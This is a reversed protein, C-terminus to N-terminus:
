FLSFRLSRPPEAAHPAGETAQHGPHGAQVGGEPGRPQLGCASAHMMCAHAGCRGVGELGPNTLQPPPPVTVPQPAYGPPAQNPDPPVYVGTPAPQPAGTTATPQPAPAPQAGTPAPNFPSPPAPRAGAPDMTVEVVETAPFRMMTGDPLVITTHDGPVHEAIEGTYSSGNTLRVTGPDALARDPAAVSALSVLLTLALRLRSAREM